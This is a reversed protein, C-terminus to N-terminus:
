AVTAESSLIADCKQVPIGNFMTVRKGAVTELSLYVNDQKRIQNRLWTRLTGNCYFVPKGMGLNPIKEEAAVMLDVLDAAGTGSILNATNINPIRVVYRWDRVTLGNEWKYHTRYGQYRGGAADLLTVEGLDQHEFGAKSGKPYIGHITNEGWVVLWISTNYASGGGTIVNESNAAGTLADFRPALGVFQEPDLTSDGYFLTTSMKQNMSELFAKDESLRFAATNGNIDVIKKDIEAYAEVSGCSDTVQKTTSKSPQVGYNLKRWTAEPLGTRVTTLHGTPLNGEVYPIDELIPNMKNMLEIITAIKDDPGLRRAIDMMTVNAM